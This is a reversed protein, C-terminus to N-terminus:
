LQTPCRRDYHLLGLFAEFGALGDRKGADDAVTYIEPTVAIGSHGRIEM